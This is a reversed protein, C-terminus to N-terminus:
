RGLTRMVLHGCIVCVVGVNRALASLWPQAPPAAEGAVARALAHVHAVSLPWDSLGRIWGQPLAAAGIQTGIIAGSIAAVTDTDGGLRIAAEIVQRPRPQFRAWCYISAPVTHM